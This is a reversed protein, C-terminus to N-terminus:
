PSPRLLCCRKYKKGSGCPCPENRGIKTARRRGTASVNPPPAPVLRAPVLLAPQQQQQREQAEFLTEGFAKMREHRDFLQSVGRNRFVYREWLGPVLAEDDTGHSFRVDGTGLNITASGADSDEAPDVFVVVVEHCDCEPDPCYLDVVEYVRDGVPYGDARPTKFVGGFALTQGPEWDGPVADRDPEDSVPPLGKLRRWLRAFDDLLEGDLAEQLPALLAEAEPHRTHRTDVHLEGTDPVLRAAIRSTSDVVPQLGGLRRTSLSLKGRTLTVSTVRFDIPVVKLLIDRCPCTPTSCTRALCALGRGGPSMFTLVGDKSLKPRRAPQAKLKGM